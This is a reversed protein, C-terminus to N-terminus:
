DRRPGVRGDPGPVVDIPRAVDHGALGAGEHLRHHPLLQLLRIEQADPRGGGRLPLHLRPPGVDEHGVVGVAPADHLVGVPGPHHRRRLGDEREGVGVGDGGAVLGPQGPDVAEDGVHLPVATQEGRRALALELGDHEQLSGITVPACGARLSPSLRRRSRTASRTADPTKATTTSAAVTEWTSCSQRAMRVSASSRVPVRARMRAWSTPLVKRLRWSWNSAAPSVTASSTAVPLVSSAFASRAPCVSWFPRTRSSASTSASPRTAADDRGALTPTPIRSTTSAARRCGFWSVMPEGRSPRLRAAPPCPRSPRAGARAPYKVSALGTPGPGPEGVRTATTPASESTFSSCWM